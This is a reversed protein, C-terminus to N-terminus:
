WPSFPGSLWPSSGPDWRPQERPGILNGTRSIYGRLHRQSESCLGGYQFGGSFTESLNGITYSSVGQSQLQQRDSRGGTSANQLVWLAQEACAQKVDVPIQDLAEKQINRPWELAQDSAIPYGSFRNGDIDKTAMILARGKDDTNADTWASSGLRLDLLATADAVSLYSNSTAGGVTTIVTVAM